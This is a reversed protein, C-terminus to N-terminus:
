YPAVYGQPATGYAQPGTGLKFGQVASFSGERGTTSIYGGEGDAIAVHGYAGGFGEGWFVMSGAPPPPDFGRIYRSQGTAPDIQGEFHQRYSSAHGPHLDPPEYGGHTWAIKAFSICDYSWEGVPGSPWGFIGVDSDSAKSKGIQAKAWNAVDARMEARQARTASSEVVRNVAGRIRNYVSTQKGPVPPASAFSGSNDAVGMLESRAKLAIAVSQVNGTKIQTSRTSVTRITSEAEHSIGVPGPRSLARNADELAPVIDSLLRNGSAMMANPDLLVPRM